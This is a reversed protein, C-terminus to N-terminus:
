CIDVIEAIEKLICTPEYALILDEKWKCKQEREARLLLHPPSDRSKTPNTRTDLGKNEEKYPFM